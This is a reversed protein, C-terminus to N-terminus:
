TVTFVYNRVKMVEKTQKHQAAKSIVNVHDGNHYLTQTSRIYTVIYLAVNIFCLKGHFYCGNQKDNWEM